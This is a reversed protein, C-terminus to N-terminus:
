TAATSADASSTYTNVEPSPMPVFGSDTQDGALMSRADECALTESPAFTPPARERPADLPCSPAEDNEEFM